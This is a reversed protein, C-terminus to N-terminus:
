GGLGCTPCGPRASRASRASPPSAKVFSDDSGSFIINPSGREAYAVANVDDQHGQVQAVVKGQVAVRPLPSGPFLRSPRQPAALATACAPRRCLSSKQLPPPGALAQGRRM